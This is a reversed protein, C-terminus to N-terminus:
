AAKAQAGNYTANLTIEANLLKSIPCGKKADNAAKELATQDAGPATVALDLHSKTVAFGEGVKELTVTCKTEIKDATIGAKGLEASLAMSFCSAHAAGILEEPNSGKEGEFRTKFGYPLNNLGGNGTSITGKGTKLDGQWQASATNTISM